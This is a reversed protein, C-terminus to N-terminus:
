IPRFPVRSLAVKEIHCRSWSSHGLEELARQALAAHQSPGIRVSSFTFRANPPALPLELYPVLVGGPSTRCKRSANVARNWSTGSHTVLRWEGEEEFAPDKLAPALAYFARNFSLHVRGSDSLQLDTLWTRDALRTFGEQLAARLLEDQLDPDYICRVLRVLCREAIETLAAAALGICYGSAGSYGRWQSLRDEFTSFSVIFHEAPILGRRLFVAEFRDALEPTVAFSHRERAWLASLRRFLYQYESGDNLYAIHTAWLTASRLIGLLGNATTYHFLHDPAAESSM